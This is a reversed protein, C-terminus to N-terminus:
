LTTLPSRSTEPPTTTRRRGTSPARTERSNFFTLFIDQWYFRSVFKKVVEEAQEILGDVWKPQSFLEPQESIALSYTVVSKAYLDPNDAGNRACKLVAKFSMSFDSHINLQSINIQLKDMGGDEKQRQIQSPSTRGQSGKGIGHCHHPRGRLPLRRGRSFRQSDCHRRKQHSRFFDDFDKLIVTGVNKIRGSLFLQWFRRSDCHNCKVKSDSKGDEDQQALIWDMSEQVKRSDIKIYKSAQAFVRCLCVSLM